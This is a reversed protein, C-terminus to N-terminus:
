HGDYFVELLTLGQAPMTKGARTRDRAHIIAPIDDPNIKGMGVDVLTGAIIRVMNYLFGNGNITIEVLGDNHYDDNIGAVQGGVTGNITLSNVRRITTTASSGTAQFSSFDHEGTFYQCATQMAALDLPTPEHTSFRGLIPNRHTSNLIKYSYTKSIADKIPHFSDPTEIVNLVAIDDPLHANIVKALKHIPVRSPVPMLIHARQGAAHVGADTRGAGLMKVLCGLVEQAAAKLVGAATRGTGQEQWGNFDTGDYAVTLLIGM